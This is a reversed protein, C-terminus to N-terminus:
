PKSRKGKAKNQAVLPPALRKTAITAAGQLPMHKAKAKYLLLKSNEAITTNNTIVPILYDGVKKAKLQVTSEAEIDTYGVWFFPAVFADDKWTDVEAATPQAPKKIYLSIGDILCPLDVTGSEKNTTIDKIMVTPVMLLCGKKIIQKAFVCTPRVCLSVMDGLGHPSGALHQIALLLNAKAIERAGLDSTSSLCKGVWSPSVLKPPDGKFIQWNKIMVELPIDVVICEGMRLNYSELKVTDKIDVLKFLSSSGMQKEYVFQGVCLGHESAVWSSDNLNEFTTAASSKGSAAATHGSSALHQWPNALTVDLKDLEDVMTQRVAAMDKYDKGEFGLRGKGTLHLASRVLLRGFIGDHQATTIQGVDACETLYLKAKEFDKEAEELEALKDKGALKQIDSKVLLKSIGDVVKPSILNTAIIAQRCIPMRKTESFVVDTVTRLFEEGLKRNEAYQKSFSDLWRIIPADPGGSYYRVYKVLVM